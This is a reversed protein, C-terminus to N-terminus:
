TLGPVLTEMQTTMAEVVDVRLEVGVGPATPVPLM